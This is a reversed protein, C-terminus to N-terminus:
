LQIGRRHRRPLQGLFASLRINGFFTQRAMKAWAAPSWLAAALRGSMVGNILGHALRRHILRASAV